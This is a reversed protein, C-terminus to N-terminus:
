RQSGSREGAARARRVAADVDEATCAPVEGVPEGTFPAISARMERPEATHVQAILRAVLEDGLRSRSGAVADPRVPSGGTDSPPNMTSTM